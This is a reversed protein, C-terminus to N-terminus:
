GSSSCNVSLTEGRVELRYSIDTAGFNLGISLYYWDKDRRIIDNIFFDPNGKYEEIIMERISVFLSDIEDNELGFFVINMERLNKNNLYYCEMRADKELMVIEYTYYTLNGESLDEKEKVVIGPIKAEIRKPSDGFCINNEKFFLIPYKISNMNYKRYTSVIGVIFLLVLLLVFGSVAITKKMLMVEKIRATWFELLLFSKGKGIGRNIVHYYGSESMTRAQRPM